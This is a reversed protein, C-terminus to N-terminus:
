GEEKSLKELYEKTPNKRVQDLISSLSIEKGGRVHLRGMEIAFNTLEFINKFSKRLSENTLLDKM